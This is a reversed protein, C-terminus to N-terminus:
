NVHLIMKEEWREIEKETELKKGQKHIGLKTASQMIHYENKLSRFVHPM